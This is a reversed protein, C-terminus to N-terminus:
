DRAQCSSDTSALLASTFSHFAVCGPTFTSYTCPLQSLTWSWSSVEKSPPSAGSMM